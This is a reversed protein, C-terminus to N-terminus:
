ILGRAFFTIVFGGVFLAVILCDKGLVTWGSAQDSHAGVREVLEPLASHDRVREVWGPLALFLSAVCLAQGASTCNMCDEFGFNLAAIGSLCGLSLLLFHYKSSFRTYREMCTSLKEKCKWCCGNEAIERFKQATAIKEQITAVDLLEQTVAENLLKQTIAIVEDKRYFVKEFCGKHYFYGCSCKIGKFLRGILCCAARVQIEDVPKGCLECLCGAPAIPVIEVKAEDPMTNPKTNEQSPIEEHNIEHEMGFVNGAVIFTLAFCTFRM